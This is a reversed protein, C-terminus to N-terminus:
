VVFINLFLYNLCTESDFHFRLGNKMGFSLGFKKISNGGQGKLEADDGGSDAGSDAASSSVAAAMTTTKPTVAAPSKASEVTLTVLRTELERKETELIM